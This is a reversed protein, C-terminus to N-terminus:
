IKQSFTTNPNGKSTIDSNSNCNIAVGLTAENNHFKVILTGEFTVNSNRQLYIARGNETAKNNVFIITSNADGQFIVFSYSYFNLASGFASGNKDFTVIANKSFTLSSNYPSYIAGGQTAKNNHLM